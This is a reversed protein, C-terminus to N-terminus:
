VNEVAMMTKLITISCCAGGGDVNEYNLTAGSGYSLRLRAAVNSVAYGGPSNTSPDYIDSSSETLLHNLIMLNRDDIGSGNDTVTIFVRDENEQIFIRIKGGSEIQRFGHTISNEILPQLIFKIIKYNTVGPSYIVEFEFLDEYRIKQIFLYNRAHEIEDEISIIGHGKSLSIRLLKSLARILEGTKKDGSLRSLMHINDLTNYIFHPNIQYILSNLEAIKITEHDEQITRMLGEIDKVMHNFSKGIEEFEDHSNLDLHTKFDGKQFSRLSQVIAYIPRTFRNTYIFAVIVTGMFAFFVILSMIRQLKRLEMMIADIPIVSVIKWMTGTDAAYLIIRKNGIFRSVGMDNKEVLESHLINNLQFDPTSDVWTNRNYVIDANQDLLYYNSDMMLGESGVIDEFAVSNIKLILVGPPFDIDLHRIYRAVFLHKQGDDSFLDDNQWSWVLKAYTSDLKKTIISKLVDDASKNGYWSTSYINKKNDMYLVSDIYTSGYQKLYKTLNASEFSSISNGLTKQVSENIIIRTTIDNLDNNFRKFREGIKLNSYELQNMANSQIYSSFLSNTALIIIVLPIIVLLLLVFTMRIRIKSDFLMFFKTKGLGSKM